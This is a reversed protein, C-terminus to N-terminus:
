RQIQDQQDGNRGLAPKRTLRTGYSQIRLPGYIRRGSAVAHESVEFKRLAFPKQTRRLKEPAFRKECPGSRYLKVKVDQIVKIRYLEKLHEAENHNNKRKLAKIITNELKM